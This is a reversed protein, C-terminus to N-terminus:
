RLALVAKVFENGYKKTFVEYAQIAIKRFAAVDPKTEVM